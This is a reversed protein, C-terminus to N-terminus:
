WTTLEPSPALKSVNATSANRRAPRLESISSTTSPSVRPRGAGRGRFELILHKSESATPNDDKGGQCSPKARKILRPHRPNSIM